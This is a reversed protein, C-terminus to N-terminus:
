APDRADGPSRTWAIDPHERAVFRAIGAAALDVQGELPTLWLNDFHRHPVVELLLGQTEAFARLVDLDCGVLEGDEYFIFPEFGTYAAVTLVGPRVTGLSM